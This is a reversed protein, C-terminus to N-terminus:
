DQSLQVGDMFLPWLSFLFSFDTCIIALVKLSNGGYCHKLIKSDENPIEVYCYDHDNCVRDHKKLKKETRYLHFCNLCCFDGNHNSTMGRLLAQLGKVALYHWKKGDIIMLLTVQNKRKFNHKSKFALRM